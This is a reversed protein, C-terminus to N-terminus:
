GRKFLMWNAEVEFLFHRAIPLSLPNDYDMREPHWQVGLLFPKGAPDNWEFAEIIGDPSQASMRLNEALHEVAQHHASNIEGDTVRCIKKILSGGAVNLPHHSDGEKTSRHEIDSYFDSPIDVILTGGLAVNLIQAGRCIGLIPIKMEQAQEIVAFELTDREADIFCDELRDAKGYKDPQVDPGGTLILGSCERLKELAHEQDAYLDLIECEAGAARLWEEYKAYKPTGSARSIAIKM